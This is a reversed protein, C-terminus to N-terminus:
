AGVVARTGVLPQIVGHTKISAALEEIGQMRSRVNTEDADIRDIAISNSQTQEAIETM